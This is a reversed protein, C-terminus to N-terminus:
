NIDFTISNITNNLLETLPGMAYNNVLNELQTTDKNTCYSYPMSPIPPINFIETGINIVEIAPNVIDNAAIEVNPLNICVPSVSNFSVQLDSFNINTLYFNPLVINPITFTYYITSPETYTINFTITGTVIGGNANLTVTESASEGWLPISPSGPWACIVSPSCTSAITGWCGTAPSSPIGVGMCYSSCCTWCNPDFIDCCPGCNSMCSRHCGCDSPPLSPYGPWACGAPISPTCIVPYHDCGGSPSSPVYLDASGTAMITVAVDTFYTGTFNTTYSGTLGGNVGTLLSTTLPVVVTTDNITFNMANQVNGLTISYQGNNIGTTSFTGSDLVNFCEFDLDNLTGAPCNTNPISYSNLKGPLLINNNIYNIIDQNTLSNTSM